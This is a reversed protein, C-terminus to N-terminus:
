VSLLQHSLLFSLIIGGFIYRSKSVTPAEDDQVSIRLDQDRRGVHNGSDAFSPLMLFGLLGSGATAVAVAAM